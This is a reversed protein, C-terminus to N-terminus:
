SLLIDLQIPLWRSLRLHRELTPVTSIVSLCRTYVHVVVQFLLGVPPNNHRLLKGSQDQDEDQWATNGGIDHDSFRVTKM